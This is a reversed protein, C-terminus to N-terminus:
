ILVGSLQAGRLCYDEPQFAKLYVGIGFWNQLAVQTTKKRISEKGM